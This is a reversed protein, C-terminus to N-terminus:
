EYRLAKVPDLRAARWAPFLTAALSVGLALAAALVVDGTRLISPMETLFPIAGVSARVWGQIADLNASIVVGLILGSVTGALGLLAGSFLFIRMVSGTTAGCTRLIAIGHGKEKVLMILGTLINFAAIVIMLTLILFMMVREVRLATLLSRQTEQWPVFRLNNALSTPLAAAAARASNPDDLLIELKTVADEDTEFFSQGDRLRMFVYSDDYQFMRTHFIAAVEFTRLRPAVGLGDANTRPALLRLSSGTELGYRRAMRSGVLVGGQRDFNELSGTTVNNWLTSFERLDTPRLARVVAGASVGNATALVQGEVVPVAEAVGPLRKARAVLTDFGKLDATGEATVGIHGNLGLIRQTLEARFGNMVSMVIILTAVGLAIGALSFGAIVSVFGEERRARLYRLAVRREFADFIM